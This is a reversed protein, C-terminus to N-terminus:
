WPCPLPAPGGYFYYDVMYVIDAINLQESADVDAEEFCPPEPGSPNGFAYEVFYVLDAINIQDSPDGDVNGRIGECCGDCADGIGDEDTDIQDPNFVTPCNDCLDGVGDIDQDLQDENDTM